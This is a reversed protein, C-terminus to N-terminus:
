KRKGASKRRTRAKTDEASPKEKKREMFDMGQKIIEGLLVLHSTSKEVKAKVLDVFSDIKSITENVRDIVRSTNRFIKIIYYLLWSIFITLWLISFALVIFLFDKSTELM